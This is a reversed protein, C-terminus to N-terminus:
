KRHNRNTYIYLDLLHWTTCVAMEYEVFIERTTRPPCVYFLTSITSSIVCSNSVLQAGCGCDCHCNPWRPSVLSLSFSFSLPSLSLFYFLLLHLSCVPSNTHERSIGVTGTTRDTGSPCSAFVGCDRRIKKQEKKRRIRSQQVSGNSFELPILVLQSERGNNMEVVLTCEVWCNRLKVLWCCYGGWFFSKDFIISPSKFSAWARARILVLLELLLLGARVPLGLGPASPPPVAAVSSAMFVCADMTRSFIWPKLHTLLLYIGNCRSLLTSCFNGQGNRHRHAFLNDFNRRPEMGFRTGPCVTCVACVLSALQQDTTM